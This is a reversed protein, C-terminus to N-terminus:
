SSKSSSNVKPDTMSPQETPPAPSAAPQALLHYPLFFANAILTPVVASLATAIRLWVSFLAAILALGLWVAALMWTETM